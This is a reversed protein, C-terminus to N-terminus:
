VCRWWCVNSGKITTYQKLALALKQEFIDAICVLLSSAVQQKLAVDKNILTKTPMDYCKKKSTM